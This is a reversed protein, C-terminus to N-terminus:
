LMQVFTKKIVERERRIEDLTNIRFDAAFKPDIHARKALIRNQLDNEARANSDPAAAIAEESSCHIQPRRRCQNNQNHANPKGNRRV